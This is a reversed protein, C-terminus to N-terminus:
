SPSFAVFKQDFPIILNQCPESSTVTVQATKGCGIVHVAEASASELRVELRNYIDHRQPMGDLRNM